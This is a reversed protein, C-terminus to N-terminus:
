VAQMAAAAATVAPVYKRIQVRIRAARGRAGCFFPAGSLAKSGVRGVIQAVAAHSRSRENAKASQAPPYERAAAAISGPRDALDAVPKSGAIASVVCRREEEYRTLAATFTALVDKALDTDLDTDQDTDQADRSMATTTTQLRTIHQQCEAIMCDVFALDQRLHAVGDM